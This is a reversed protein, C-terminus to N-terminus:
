WVAEPPAGVTGIREPDIGCERAHHRILRVASQVDEVATPYLSRPTARHNITCVTYGAEVLPVAEV